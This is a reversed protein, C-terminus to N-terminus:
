QAHHRAMGREWKGVYISPPPPFSPEFSCYGCGVYASIRFINVASDVGGNQSDHTM